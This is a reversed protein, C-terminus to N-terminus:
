LRDQLQKKVVCKRKSVLRLGTNKEWPDRLSACAYPWKAYCFPRHPKVIGHLCAQLPIQFDMAQSAWTYGQTEKDQIKDTDM